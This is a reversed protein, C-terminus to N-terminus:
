LCCASVHDVVAKVWPATDRADGLYCRRTDRPPQPLNEGGEGQDREDCDGNLLAMREYHRQPPDPM